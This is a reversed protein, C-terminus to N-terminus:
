PRRSLIRTVWPAWDPLFQAVFERPFEPRRRPCTKGARRDRGEGTYYTELAQGATEEPFDPAWGLLEDSKEDRVRYLGLLVGKCLELAGAELGLGIHRKMNEIFPEVAKGLVEWAAETPEVYGWAHRGSRGQLDDLDLARVAEEVQEAVGELSVKALISQAMQEVEVRLAPHAALLGRLLEQAEEPKLGDLVAPKKASRRTPERRPKAGAKRGESPSRGTKRRQEDRTM